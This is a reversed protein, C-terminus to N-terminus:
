IMLVFKRTFYFESIFVFDNIYIQHEVEFKLLLIM